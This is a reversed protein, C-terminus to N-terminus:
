AQVVVVTTNDLGGGANAAEILRRCRAEPESESERLVQAIQSDDLMKTLGDTCLLLLDDPELPYLSVDPEALTEIGLARSLVHRDPHMLAQAPTILGQQVYEEVASHDRSLPRLREKRLLYARSDGVHAVAACPAPDPLMLLIVITTGMGTLHFNRGAESLIAHHSAAIAERLTAEIGAPGRKGTALRDQAEDAFFRVTAEVAIRSAVDGGAHGGMGDAVVWLGQRNLVAFADQNSPRVLGIDSLGAGHYIVL